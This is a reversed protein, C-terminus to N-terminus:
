DLRRTKKGREQRHDPFMIIQHSQYPKPKNALKASTSVPSVAERENLYMNKQRRNPLRIIVKRRTRKHRGNYLIDLPRIQQSKFHYSLSLPQSTLNSLSPEDLERSSISRLPSHFPTFPIPYHSPLCIPTDPTPNSHLNCHASPAQSFDPIFNHLRIRNKSHIFPSHSFAHM